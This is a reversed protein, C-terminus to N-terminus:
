IDASIRWRARAERALDPDEGRRITLGLLYAIDPETEVWDNHGACLLLLNALDDGGGQSQKRLHHTTPHGFCDGCIHQLHMVRCGADRRILARKNEDYRAQAARDRKVHFM